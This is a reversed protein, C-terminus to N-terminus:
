HMLQGEGPWGCRFQTGCQTHAGSVNSWIEPASTQFTRPFTESYTRRAHMHTQTRLVAAACTCVALLPHHTKEITRESAFAHVCECKVGEMAATRVPVLISSPSCNVCVCTLVATRELHTHRNRLEYNINALQVCM